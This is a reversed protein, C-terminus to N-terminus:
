IAEYKYPFCIFDLNRSLNDKHIIKMQTCKFWLSWSSHRVMGHGKFPIIKYFWSIVIPILKLCLFHQHEWFAAFSEFDATSQVQYDNCTDATVGLLHGCYLYISGGLILYSLNLFSHDWCKGFPVPGPTRLLLSGRNALWVRQVTRHFGGFNPLLTLIPILTWNPLLNAFQHLIKDISPTM